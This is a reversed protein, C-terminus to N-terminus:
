QNKGSLGVAGLINRGPPFQSVSPQDQSSIDVHIAIAENMVHENRVDVLM